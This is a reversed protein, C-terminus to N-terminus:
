ISSQRPLSRGEYVRATCPSSGAAPRGFAGGGSCGHVHIRRGIRALRVYAICKDITERPVEIGADERPARLAMVQCITVSIDADLQRPQYRWGGRRKPYQRDPQRGAGAQRPPGGRGVNRLMGRPVAAFGHGYMPGLGASRAGHHIRKGPHSGLYLPGGPSTRATRGATPPAGAPWPGTRGTRLDSRKRRAAPPSPAMRTSPRPLISRLGNEIAKEAAPTIMRGADAEVLPDEAALGGAGQWLTAAAILLACAPGTLWRGRRRTQGTM